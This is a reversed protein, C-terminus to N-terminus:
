QSYTILITDTNANYWMFNYGIKPESTPNIQAGPFLPFIRHSGLTLQIENGNSGDMNFCEVGYVGTTPTSRIAVGFSNDNNGYPDQYQFIFLSENVFPPENDFNFSEVGKWVYVPALDLWTIPNNYYQCWQGTITGNNFLAAVDLPPQSLNLYQVEKQTRLSNYYTINNELWNQTQNLLTKNENLYTQIQDNLTQLRIYSTINDQLWNQTQNLLTKNENLYTQIQDNLTQLNSIARNKETIKSTYYAVAGSLSAILVICIIGLAVAFSRRGKNATLIRAM